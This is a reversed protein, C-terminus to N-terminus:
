FCLFCFLFAQLFLTVLAVKACNAAVVPDPPEAELTDQRKSIVYAALVGGSGAESHFSLPALGGKFLGVVDGPQSWSDRNRRWRPHTMSHTARDYGVKKMVTEILWAVAPRM